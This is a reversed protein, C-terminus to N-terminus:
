FTLTKKPNKKDNKQYNCYSYHIILLVSLVEHVRENLLSNTSKLSEQLTAHKIQLKEYEGMKGQFERIENELDKKEMTVGELVQLKDELLKIKSRLGKAEIDVDDRQKCSDELQHQVGKLSM